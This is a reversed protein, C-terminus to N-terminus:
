CRAQFNLSADNDEEKSETGVDTVGKNVTEDTKDGGVSDFFDGVSLNLRLDEPYEKISDEYVDDQYVPKYVGNCHTCDSGLWGYM